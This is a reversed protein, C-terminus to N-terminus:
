FKFIQFLFRCHHRRRFMSFPDECCYCVKCLQDPMWYERFNGDEPDDPNEKSESSILKLDEKEPNGEEPDIFVPLMRHNSIDVISPFEAFRCVINNTLLNM